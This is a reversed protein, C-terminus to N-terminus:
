IGTFTYILSREKVLVVVGPGICLVEPYGPVRTRTGPYELIRISHM